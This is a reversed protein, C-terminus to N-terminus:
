VSHFPEIVETRKVIKTIQIIVKMFFILLFINSIVKLLASVNGKIVEHTLSCFGIFMSKMMDSSWEYWVILAYSLENMRVGLISRMALSPTRKLLLKTALEM